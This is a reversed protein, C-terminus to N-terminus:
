DTGSAAPHRHGGRRQNIFIVRGRQEIEGADELLYIARSVVERSSGVLRALQEHTPRSTISRRGDPSNMDRDALTLLVRLVRTPVDATALDVAQVTTQSLRRALTVLLHHSLVPFRELFEPTVPETLRAWVTAEAAIVDASRGVGAIHAVEGVVEGPTIRNLTVVRGSDGSRQVEAAGALLLYVGDSPAGTRLLKEGRALHLVTSREILAAREAASMTAFVGVAITSLDGTGGLPTSEVDFKREVFAM